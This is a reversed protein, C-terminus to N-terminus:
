CYINVELNIDIKKNCLRVKAKVQRVKLYCIHFFLLNLCLCNWLNHKEKFDEM